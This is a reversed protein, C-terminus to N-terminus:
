KTAAVEDRERSLEEAYHSSNTTGFQVEYIILPGPLLRMQVIMRLKQDEDSKIYVSEFLDYETIITM